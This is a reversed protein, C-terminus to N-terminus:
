TKGFEKKELYSNAVASVKRLLLYYADSYITFPQKAANGNSVLISVLVHTDFLAAISCPLLQQPGNRCKGSGFHKYFSSHAQIAGCRKRQLPYL